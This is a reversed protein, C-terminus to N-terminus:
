YAFFRFHRCLFLLQVSVKILFILGVAFTVVTFATSEAFSRGLSRLGSTPLPAPVSTEEASLSTTELDISTNNQCVIVTVYFLLTFLFRKSLM